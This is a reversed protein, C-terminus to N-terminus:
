LKHCLLRQLASMVGLVEYSSLITKKTRPAKYKLAFYIIADVMEVFGCFGCAPPAPPVTCYTELDLFAVHELATPVSAYKLAAWYPSVNKYIPWINNLVNEKTYRTKIGPMKCQEAMNGEDMTQISIDIAQSVSTKNSIASM